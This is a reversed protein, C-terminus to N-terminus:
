LALFVSIGICDPFSFCNICQFIGDDDDDDDDDLILLTQILLEFHLSNSFNVHNFQYRITLSDVM